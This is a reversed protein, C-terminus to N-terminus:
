ESADAAFYARSVAQPDLGGIDVADHPIKGSCALTEVIAALSGPHDRGWPLAQRDFHSVINGDDDVGVRALSRSRSKPCDIEYLGQMATVGQRVPQETVMMTALLKHGAATDRISDRDVFEEIRNPYSGREMVHWWVSADAAAPLAVMVFCAAFMKAFSTLRM